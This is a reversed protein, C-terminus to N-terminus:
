SNLVPLVAHSSQDAGSFHHARAVHTVHSHITDQSSQGSYGLHDTHSSHLRSEISLIRQHINKIGRVQNYISGCQSEIAHSSLTVRYIKRVMFQEYTGIERKQIFYRM